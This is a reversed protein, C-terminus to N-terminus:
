GSLLTRDKYPSPGPPAGGRRLSNGEMCEDLEPDWGHQCIAHDSREWAVSSDGSRIRHWAIM